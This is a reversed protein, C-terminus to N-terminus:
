ARWFSVKESWFIMSKKISKWFGGFSCKKVGLTGTHLRCTSKQLLKRGRPSGFRGKPRCKPGLPDGFPRYKWRGTPGPISGLAVLHGSKRLERGLVSSLPGLASKKRNKHRNKIYKSDNPSGKTCFCAGHVRNGL